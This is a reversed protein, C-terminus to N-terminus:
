TMLEDTDRMATIAQNLEDYDYSTVEMLNGDPDNFYISYAADHDVVDGISIANGKKNLLNISEAHKLFDRFGQADVRFAIEAKDGVRSFLALATNGDDSSIVLPGGGEAWFEKSKVVALGLVNEYWVAAEYKDAVMVHVHDLQAVKFMLHIGNKILQNM